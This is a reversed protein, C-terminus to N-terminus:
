GADHAQLLGEVLTQLARLEHQPLKVMQKVLAAPSVLAPGGDAAAVIYDEPQYGALELAETEDIHLARTVALV